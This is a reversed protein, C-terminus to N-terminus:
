VFTPRPLTVAGPTTAAYRWDVLLSPISSHEYTRDAVNRVGGILAFIVTALVSLLVPLSPGSGHMYRGSGSGGGGSGGSSGGRLRLPSVARRDASLIPSRPEGGGATAAFFDALEVRRIDVSLVSVYLTIELAFECLLSISVIACFEQLMPIRSYVGLLMLGEMSLLSRMLQPGAAALGEAVQFRHSPCRHTTQTLNQLV